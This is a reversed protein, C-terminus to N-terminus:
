WCPSFGSPPASACGACAPCSISHRATQAAPQVKAPRAKRSDRPKTIAYWIYAHVRTPFTHPLRGQRLERWTWTGWTGQPQAMHTAQAHVSIYVHESQPESKPTCMGHATLLACLWHACLAAVLTSLSCAPLLVSRLTAEKARTTPQAGTRGNAQSTPVPLLALAHTATTASEHM